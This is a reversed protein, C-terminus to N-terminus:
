SFTIPTLSLWLGFLKDFWPDDLRLFQGKEGDNDCCFIIYKHRNRPAIEDRFNLLEPLNLAEQAPSTNSNTSYIFFKHFM